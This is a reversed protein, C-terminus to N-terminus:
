LNLFKILDNFMYLIVNLLEGRRILLLQHLLKVLEFFAIVLCEGRIKGLVCSIGSDVLTVTNTFIALVEQRSDIRTENLLDM